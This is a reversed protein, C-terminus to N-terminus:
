KKTKTQESPQEPTPTAGGKAGKTNTKSNKRRRRSRTVWRTMAEKGVRPMIGLMVAVVWVTERNSGRSDRNGGCRV